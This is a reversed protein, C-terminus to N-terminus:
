RDNLRTAASALDDVIDFWRHLRTVEFVGMVFATPSVLVVRSRTMRARTVVNILESLGSSNIQNLGSLDIALKSEPEAVIPQLTDAINNEDGLNFEGSLRALTFNKQPEVQVNM